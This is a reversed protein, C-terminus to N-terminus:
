PSLRPRKSRRRVPASVYPNRYGMGALLAIEVSEMAAAERRDQHDYGLLHLVGHITLHAAHAALSKGQASAERCLVGYSLVIDGLNPAFRPVAPFSLVNTPKRRNRYKRNLDRVSEDSALLICLAPSEAKSRGGTPDMAVAMRAARRIVPIVDEDARWM